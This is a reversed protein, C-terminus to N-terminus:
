QRDKRSALDVTAGPLNQAPKGFLIASAESLANSLDQNDQEASRLSDRLRAAEARLDDNEQVLRAAEALAADREAQVAEAEALATEAAERAEQAQRDAEALHNRLEAAVAEAQEARVREVIARRVLDLREEFRALAETAPDQGHAATMALALLIIAAAGRM